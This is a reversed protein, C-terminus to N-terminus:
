FHSPREVPAKAVSIPVCRLHLSRGHDNASQVGVLTRDGRRVIRPERAAPLHREPPEPARWLQGGRDNLERRGLSVVHERAAVQLPEGRLAWRQFSLDPDPRGRRYRPQARPVALRLLPEVDPPLQEGRHVEDLAGEPLHLVRRRGARLPRHLEQRRRPARVPEAAVDVIWVVRDETCRVVQSRVARIVVLASGEVAVVVRAQVDVGNEVVRVPDRM